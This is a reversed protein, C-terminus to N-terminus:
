VPLLSELLAIVERRDRHHPVIRQWTLDFLQRYAAGMTAEAVAFDTWRARGGDRPHPTLVARHEGIVLWQKRVDLRLMSMEADDLLALHYQPRTRLLAILHRVHDVRAEWPLAQARLTESECEDVDAGPVEARENLLSHLARVPCIEWRASESLRADLAAHRRARAEVRHALETPACRQVCAWDSDAQSWSRPESFFSLTELVLRREGTLEDWRDSELGSAIANEHPLVETLPRTLSKLQGFHCQLAALMDAKRFVLAADPLAPNDTCINIFGRYGPIVLGSYPPRLHGDRGFYRPRFRRAGILGLLRAALQLARESDREVRWLVTLAWGRRMTENLAAQWQELLEREEPTRAPTEQTSIFIIEHDGNLSAQPLRDLVKM